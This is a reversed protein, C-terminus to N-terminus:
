KRTHVVNEKYWKATKRSSGGGLSSNQNPSQRNTRANKKKNSNSVGWMYVVQFYIYVSKNGNRKREKKNYILNSLKKKNVGSNKSSKKASPKKKWKAEM